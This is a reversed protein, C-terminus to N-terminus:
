GPFRKLENGITVGEKTLLPLLKALSKSVAIRVLEKHQM